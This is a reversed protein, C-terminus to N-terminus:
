YIKEEYRYAQTTEEDPEALKADPANQVKTCAPPTPNLQVKPAQAYAGTNETPKDPVAATQAAPQRSPTGTRGRSPSTSHTQNESKTCDTPVDAQRLNMIPAPSEKYNELEKYPDKSKNCILFPSVAMGLILITLILALIKARRGGPTGPSASKKKSM